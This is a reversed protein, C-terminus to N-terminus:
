LIVSVASFTVVAYSMEVDTMASINWPVPDEPSKGQTDRRYGSWFHM